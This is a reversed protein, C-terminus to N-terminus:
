VGGSTVGPKTRDRYTTSIAKRATRQLSITDLSVKTLSSAILRMNAFNIEAEGKFTYIPGLPNILSTTLVALDAFSQSRHANFRQSTGVFAYFDHNQDAM